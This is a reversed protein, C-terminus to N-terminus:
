NSDRGPIVQFDRDVVVIFGLVPGIRNTTENIYPTMSASTGTVCTAAKAVILVVIRVDTGIGNDDDDNAVNEVLVVM